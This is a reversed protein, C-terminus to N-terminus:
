PYAANSSRLEEAAEALRRRRFDEYAARRALAERTYTYRDLDSAAYDAIVTLHEPRM